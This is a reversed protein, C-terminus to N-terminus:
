LVQTNGGFSDCNQNNQENVVKQLNIKNSHLFHAM